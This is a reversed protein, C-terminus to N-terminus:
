GGPRGQASDFPEATGGSGDAPGAPPPAAMRHLVIATRRTNEELAILLDIGEGAAYLFLAYIIGGFFMSVGILIPAVMLGPVAGPAMGGHMRAAPWVGGLLTPGAVALLLGAIAMLAAIAALIKFLVSVVRLGKFRRAM